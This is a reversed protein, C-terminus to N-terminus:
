GTMDLKKYLAITVREVDEERLNNEFRARAAIRMTIRLDPADYLAQLALALHGMERFEVRKVHGAINRKNSADPTGYLDIQTDRGAARLERVAAPEMGKSGTM